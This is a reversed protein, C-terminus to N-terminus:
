NTNFLILFYASFTINTLFVEIVFLRLSHFFVVFYWMRWKVKIQFIYFMFVNWVFSVLRFSMADRVKPTNLQLYIFKSNCMVNVISDFCVFYCCRMHLSLSFFFLSFSRAHLFSHIYSYISELIDHEPLIDTYDIFKLISLHEASVNRITQIQINIESNKKKSLPTKM